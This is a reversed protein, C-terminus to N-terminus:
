SGGLVCAIVATGESTCVGSKLESEGDSDCTWDSAPRASSCSVFSDLQSKCAPAATYLMECGQVCEAETENACKAMAATACAKKCGGPGGEDSDGCGVGTVAGFGFLVVMVALTKYM